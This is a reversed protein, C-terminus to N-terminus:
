KRELIRSRFYKYDLEFRLNENDYKVIGLPFDEYREKDVLDDDFQQDLQILCKFTPIYYFDEPISTDVVLSQYGSERGPFVLTYYANLKVRYEFKGSKSTLLTDVRENGEFIVIAQNQVAKGEEMVRGLINLSVYDPDQAQLDSSLCLWLLAIYFLPKPM